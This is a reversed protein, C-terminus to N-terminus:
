GNVTRLRDLGPCTRANSREANRHFKLRIISFDFVSFSFVLLDFGVLEVDVSRIDISLGSCHFSKFSLSSGTEM